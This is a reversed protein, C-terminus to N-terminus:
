RNVATGRIVARIPDGDRVAHSLKKLVLSGVGEARGYGDASEDFTRCSGANSLIGAKTAIMQHQPSQILNASAVIAADCEGVDIASCAYHLSYLSSSCATDLVFSPGKINFAHSIRNALINPTAGTATYRTVYEPDQLQMVIHDLAFNGVYCGINQGSISELSLGASELSEYVVELLKRQQSDMSLAEVNNIGFFANEFNRIDEEIFYGTTSNISGPRGNDLHYFASANYRSNPVNCHGSRGAALADWLESASSANGPLRCGAQM